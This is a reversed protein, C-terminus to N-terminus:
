SVGACGLLSESRCYRRCEGSSREASNVEVWGVESAEVVAMVEASVVLTWRAWRM